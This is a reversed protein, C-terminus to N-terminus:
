LDRIMYILSHKYVGGTLNGGAEHPTELLPPISNEEGRREVMHPNAGWKEKYKKSKEERRWKEVLLADEGVRRRM